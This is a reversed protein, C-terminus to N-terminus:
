YRHLSLLVTCVQLNLALPPLPLHTWSSAPCGTLELNWESLSKTLSLQTAISSSQQQWGRAEVSIASLMRLSARVCMCRWVPAPTKSQPDWWAGSCLSWHFLICLLCDRWDVTSPFSSICTCSFSVPDKDWVLSLSLHFSEDVISSPCPFVHWHCPIQKKNKQYPVICFCFYTVCGLPSLMCIPPFIQM